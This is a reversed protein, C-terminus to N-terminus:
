VFRKSYHHRIVGLADMAQQDRRSEEVRVRRGDMEVLKNMKLLEQDALNKAQQRQRHAARARALEHEAHVQLRQVQALFQRFNLNDHMRHPDNQAAHYSAVYENHMRQTAEWQTKAAVVARWAQQVEKQCNDVELQAKQALIEWSTRTAM